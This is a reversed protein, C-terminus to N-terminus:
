CDQREQTRDGQKRRNQNTWSQNSFLSDTADCMLVDHHYIHHFFFILSHSKTTIEIFIVVGAVLVVCGPSSVNCM